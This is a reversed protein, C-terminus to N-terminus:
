TEQLAVCLAGDVTDSDFLILLEDKHYDFRLDVKVTQELEQIEQASLVDGDIRSVWFSTYGAAHIRWWPHNFLDALDVYNFEKSVVLRGYSRGAVDFTILYCATDIAQPTYRQNAM